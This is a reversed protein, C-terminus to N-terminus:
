YGKVQTNGEKDTYIAEEPTGKLIMIEKKIRNAEPSNHGYGIEADMLDSELSLLKSTKKADEQSMDGSVVQGNKLTAEGSDSIKTSDELKPVTVTTEKSKFWGQKGKKKGESESLDGVDTLSTVKYTGDDQLVLQNKTNDFGFKKLSDVTRLKIQNENTLKGDGKGDWDTRGGTLWDVFGGGVGKLAMGTGLTAFSGLAGLGRLPAGLMNLLGGFFGKKKGATNTPGDGLEAPTPTGDGGTGSAKPEERTKQQKDREEWAKDREAEAERESQIAAEKKEKEQVGQFDFFVKSVADVDNRVDDVEGSLTSYDNFIKTINTTNETNYESFELKFAELNQTLSNLQEKITESLNFSKQALSLAVSGSDGGQNFFSNPNIKDAM